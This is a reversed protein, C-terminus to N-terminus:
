KKQPRSAKPMASEEQKPFFAPILKIFDFLCEDLVEEMQDQKLEFTKKEAKCGSEIAYFLLDEIEGGYINQLAGEDMLSKGTKEQFRKLASYAIRIPLEGFSETKLYKIM